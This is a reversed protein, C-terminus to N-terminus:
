ATSAAASDMPDSLGVTLAQTARGVNSARSALCLQWPARPMPSTSGPHQSRRAHTAHTRSRAGDAVM